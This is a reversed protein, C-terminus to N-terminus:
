YDSHLARVQWTEVPIKSSQSTEYSHSITDGASAIPMLAIAFSLIFVNERVVGKLLTSFNSLFAEVSIM